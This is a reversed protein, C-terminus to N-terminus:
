GSSTLALVRLVEDRLERARRDGYERLLADLREPAAVDAVARLEDWAMVPFTQNYGFAWALALLRVGPEPDTESVLWRLGTAALAMGAVPYDTTRDSEM